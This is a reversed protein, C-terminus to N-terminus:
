VRVSEMFIEVQELKKQQPLLRKTNDNIRQAENLTTAEVHRLSPVGASRRDDAIARVAQRGVAGPAVPPRGPAECVERDMQRIAEVRGSRGPPPQLLELWVRHGSRLRHNRM